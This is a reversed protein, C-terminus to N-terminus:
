DTQAEGRERVGALLLMGAIFFLGVCLIAPRFGFLHNLAAFVALGWFGPAKNFVSYFGFFEAASREPIMQGYLSRSLAQAGGLVLGVVVALAYFQTQTQIFFACVVAFTWGLLSLMVARKAGARNALWGFLLAGGFAIFQIILLTTMLGGADMELESSGFLTAMYIVVQIGGSYIMYALLFKLLSPMRAIKRATKWARAFGFALHGAFLPYRRYPEPLTEASRTERLLFATFLAFGGWWLATLLMSARVAQAQDAFGFRDKALILALCLGFQLGGGVYGYAFGKSSVWDQRGEGAIQPLFADYFVNAAVFCFQSATFFLATKWVDGPGCVSLLAACLVGVYCFSLLLRKKVAAFDAIAGLAPAAALVLLAAAAGFAPWLVGASFTQGFLLVGEAPVVAEKFYFPLLGAVITTSYASNAWDYMAWGFIVRRNGRLDAM